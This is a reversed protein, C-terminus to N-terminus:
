PLVKVSQGAEAEPWPERLVTENADVGGRVLLSGDADVSLQVRRLVLKGDKVVFLEDQSGPRLVSHPLRVVPTEQEVLLQARVLSGAILRGAEDNQIEAQVPLRKTRDDLASVVATVVGTYTTGGARLEVRAGPRVLAADSASVSGVLKLRSLDAVHFQPAGPAVVVGTGDPARTVTGSFPATLTHNSLSQQALLLQAKASDRQAEALAQQQTAQVGFSEPQAGSAVVKATRAASDSALALQAEAARVAAEAARVQAAAEGADLTALVQGAKVAQGVKARLTSLRGGVKFGVDSESLPALTGEFEVRPALTAATGRVVTVSRPGAAVETAKKAVAEREQAVVARQQNAESIRIGIWAALGLTGLLLVLKGYRFGTPATRQLPTETLAM